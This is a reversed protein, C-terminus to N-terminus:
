ATVPEHGSWLDQFLFCQLPHQTFFDELIAAYEQVGRQIFAAKKEGARPEIIGAIRVEYDYPSTKASLLVALPRHTAHAFLFGGCPFHATGGLFNVAIKRSSDYDRDGMVSVIGGEDLAKMVELVGGLYGEPNIIRLQEPLQYLRLNKDRDPHQDPRMLLHVPKDWGKLATMAVQWNGAHATLLLFGDPSELLPAIKEFGCKEFRLREGGHILYYRDILSRGQSIFLQYVNWRQRLSGHDPFRRKLYALAAQVISSDFLAYWTCVIFLLGYAGRLGTFRVATIFFWFGLANGRARRVPEERKSVLKRHPIPLARRTVLLVHRHTLWLNDMFPRFSSIRESAPPYWVDISVNRIPLGAWAARALVEVEFDYKRGVCALELLHRVPYARFGSQTDRIDCGTELRLWFDSFKRGFRSSGPVNEGTMDREGIIIADPDAKIVPLFAHLDRAYHQGDGDVTILTSGGREHVARLATLIAEGKGCNVAHRIVPIGTDAMLETVDADRSGDDVILVNPVIDRCELAVQRITGANNHVPIVVWITSTAPPSTTM